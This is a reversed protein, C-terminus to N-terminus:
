YRRKYVSFQLLWKPRGGNFVGTINYKWCQRRSTWGQRTRKIKSLSCTSRTNSSAFFRQPHPYTKASVTSFHLRGSTLCLDSSNRQNRCHCLSAEAWQMLHPIPRLCMNITHSIATSFADGAYIRTHRLM